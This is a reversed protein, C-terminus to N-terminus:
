VTILTSIYFFSASYFLGLKDSIFLFDSIIVGTMVSLDETWSIMWFSCDYFTRELFKLEDSILAVLIGENYDFSFL